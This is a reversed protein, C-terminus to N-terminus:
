QIHNILLMSPSEFVVISMKNGEQFNWYCGRANLAFLLPPFLCQICIFVIWHTVRCRFKCLILKLSVSIFSKSRAYKHYFIFKLSLSKTKFRHNELGRITMWILLHKEVRRLHRCTDNVFWFCRCVNLTNNNQNQFYFNILDILNFKKIAM